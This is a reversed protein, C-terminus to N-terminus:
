KIEIRYGTELHAGAVEKGSKIADSVAKKELQWTPEVIVQKFYEQPIHGENDIVVKAPNAKVVITFAPHEIKSIGCAQMNTLLWHKIHAIKSEQAKRRDQLRVEEAKIAEGFAELNKIVFGYDAIKAELDTSEAELTDNITDTDLNLDELKSQLALRQGTLEYLSLHM